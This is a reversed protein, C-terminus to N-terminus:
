PVINLTKIAVKLNRIYSGDPVRCMDFSYDNDNRVYCLMQVDASECAGQIRVELKEPNVLM